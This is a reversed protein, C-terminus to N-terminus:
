KVGPGNNPRRYRRGLIASIRRLLAGPILRMFAVIVKYRWGPVVIVQGRDFGRLSAAAVFEATLWLSKPITARQM